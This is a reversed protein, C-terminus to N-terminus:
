TGKSYLVDPTGYMCINYLGPAIFYFSSPFHFDIGICFFIRSFDELLVKGATIQGVTGLGWSEIFLSLVLLKLTKYNKLCLLALLGRCLEIGACGTDAVAKSTFMLSSLRKRDKHYHYFFTAHEVM